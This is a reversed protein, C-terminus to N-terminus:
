SSFSFSFRRFDHDDHKLQSNMFVDKVDIFHLWQFSDSTAIFSILWLRMMDREEATLKKDWEAWESHSIIEKGESRM